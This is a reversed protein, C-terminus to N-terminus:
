LGTDVTQIDTIRIVSFWMNGKVNSKVENQVKICMQTGAYDLFLMQFAHKSKM